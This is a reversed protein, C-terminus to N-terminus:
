DAPMTRTSCNLFLRNEFSGCPRPLAISKEVPVSTGLSSTVAAGAGDFATGAGSRRRLGIVLAVRQQGIEALVRQAVAIQQGAFAVLVQEGADGRGVGVVGLM